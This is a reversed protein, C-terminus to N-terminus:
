ENDILRNLARNSATRHNASCFQEGRRNAYVKGIEGGCWACERLACNLAMERYEKDTMYRPHNHM